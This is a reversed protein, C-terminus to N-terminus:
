VVCPKKVKNKSFFGVGNLFLSLITILRTLGYLLICLFSYFLILVWKFIVMMLWTFMM